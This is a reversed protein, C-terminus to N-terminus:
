RLQHAKPRVMEIEPIDAGEPHTISSDKYPGQKIFGFKEYTAIAPVNYAAVSLWIEKEDGLWDLASQLLQSGIGQRHYRPLLYLASFKNRDQTRAAASFGIVRAGETAVWAQSDPDNAIRHRTSEIKEADTRTALRARIGSLTIGHAANPYTALWTETQVGVIGAADDPTAPRVIINAVPKM